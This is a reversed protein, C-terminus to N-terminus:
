RLTRRIEPSSNMFKNWKNEIMSCGPMKVVERHAMIGRLELVDSWNGKSAYINSLLVYFGDHDPQLQILKRGLRERM